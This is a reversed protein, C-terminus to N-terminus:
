IPTRLLIFRHREFKSERRFRILPVCKPLFDNTTVSPILSPGISIRLLAPIGVVSPFIYNPLFRHSYSGYTQRFKNAARGPFIGYRRWRRQERARTGLDPCLCSARAIEADSARAINVRGPSPLTGSKVLFILAWPARSTKCFVTSAFCEGAMPGTREGEVGPPVSVGRPM